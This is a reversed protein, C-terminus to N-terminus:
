MDAADTIFPFPKIINVGPQINAIFAQNTEYSEQTVILQQPQLITQSPLAVFEPQQQPVFAADMLDPFVEFYQQQQQEPQQPEFMQVTGNQPVLITGPPLKPVGVVFSDGVLVQSGETVIVQQPGVSQVMPQVFETQPQQQVFDPQQTVPKKVDALVCELLVCASNQKLVKFMMQRDSLVPAEITLVPSEFLFKMFTIQQGSTL